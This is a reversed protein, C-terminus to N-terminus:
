KIVAQEEVEFRLGKSDQATVRINQQLEPVDITVIPDTSMAAQTDFEVLLGTQDHISIRDIYYAPVSEGEEDLVFGTDMPHIIRFKLRDNKYVGDRAYRKLAIEGLKANGGAGIAGPTSCGGPSSVLALRSGVHWVGDSTLAAARVATSTELRIKFGVSHIPRHLYLRAVQQIPNDEALVVLEKIQGLNRSLMVTLPVDHSNEIKQPLLLSINSDFIVPANGLYADRLSPWSKSGLPDVTPAAMATSPGFLSIAFVISGLLALIATPNHHKNM